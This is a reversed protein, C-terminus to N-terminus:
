RYAGYGECALLSNVAMPVPQMQGPAIAERNAYWHAVTMLIAQRITQPLGPGVVVGAPHAQKFTATFTTQPVPPNQTPGTATVQVVERNGGVDVALLTGVLIGDMNAPTVTQQGASVALAISTVPGYGCQMRITIPWRRLYQPVPWVQYPLLEITGPMRQFTRVQYITTAVTQDNGNVDKYTVSLVQQLPPRPLRLTGLWFAEAPIDYTASVFQKGGEVNRECYVTAAEILGAILADDETVDPDVKCHGKAEDLSVPLGSPPTVLVRPGLLKATAYPWWTPSFPPLYPPGNM